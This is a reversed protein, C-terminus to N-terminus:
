WQEAITEGGHHLSMAMLEIDARGVLSECFGAFGADRFARSTLGQDRLRGARGSITRQIIALTEDDNEAVLHTLPAEREMRNRANRMNKRTKARITQFYESFSDFGGLAVVPAGQVTGTEMCGAPLGLALSSGEQVKLLSVLDCSAAAIAAEILR